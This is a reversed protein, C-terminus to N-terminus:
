AAHEPAPAPLNVLPPAKQRSEVTEGVNPSLLNYRKVSESETKLAPPELLTIILDESAVEM